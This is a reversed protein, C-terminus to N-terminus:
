KAESKLMSEILSTDVEVGHESSYYKGWKYMTKLASLFEQSSETLSYEVKPPVVPYVKRDVLGNAELDRLQQTLMKQTIGPLRRKLESFRLCGKRLHWLIVCKWKGGILDIALELPCRYIKDDVKSMM